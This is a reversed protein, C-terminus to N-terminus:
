SGHPAGWSHGTMLAEQHALETRLRKATKKLQARSVGPVAVDDRVAGTRFDVLNKLEQPDSALCYLEWEDPEGGSPDVYRVIKWGETCLARVHNPQRVPGDELFAYGPKAQTDDVVALFTDYRDQEEKTPGLESVADDSLFFAGPRSRGDPGTIARSSTGRIIASLDAGVFPRGDSVAHGAGVAAQVAKAKIGALGLLTPAVDISSTTQHVRRMKTKDHNVLPSSVVMPVHICEEYANHWKQIMGGHAGGMEGHDSLFVVITDETLGGADLTTLIKSLQRDVLYHCYMRFQNYGLFWGQPDARFQFPFASPASPDGAASKFVLGMKIAYEKQCGPKTDLSEEYSSPLVSWTDQPFGDPNLDVILGDDPDGQKPLSKEGEAPIPLPADIGRWPVVGTVGSTPPMEWSTPYVGLDHPDVMSGVALWPTTSADKGRETLFACLDQAFGPDRYVGLNTPETGHPEPSSSEWDAFGWPELSGKGDPGATDAFSVHWKGFYHTSYGGARFWDGITPTGDPDLWPVDDVTKFMGNTQDVGTRYSGTMICARSPVCAAAATYHRRCVVAHQRLRLYGPLYKTFANDPSLGEFGLIEKLGEAMGKGPGYAPPMHQQDVMLLLVNPHRAPKEKGFVADAGVAASLMAAASLTASGQIFERRTHKM